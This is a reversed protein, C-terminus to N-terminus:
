AKLHKLEREIFIQEGYLIECVDRRKKCWGKEEEILSEKLTPPIDALHPVELSPCSTEYKPYETKKRPVLKTRGNPHRKRTTILEDLDLFKVTIEEFAIPCEIKVIKGETLKCDEEM